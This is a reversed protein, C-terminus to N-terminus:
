KDLSDMWTQPMKRDKMLLSNKKHHSTILGVGLGGTQLVVGQQNGM